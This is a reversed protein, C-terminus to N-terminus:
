KVIDSLRLLRSRISLDADKVAGLLIDFRKPCEILNKPCGLQKFYVMGGMDTFGTMDSVTLVPAGKVRQIIGPALGRKAEGIFIVHCPLPLDEMTEFREVVLERGQISKGSLLRMFEYLTDDGIVAIRLTERDTFPHDPWDVFLLFNYLYLAKLRDQDEEAAAPPAAFAWSLCLVATIFFLRVRIQLMRIM